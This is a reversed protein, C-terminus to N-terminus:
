FTLNQEEPFTLPEYHPCDRCPGSPNVACRLYASRANFQCSLDGVIYGLGEVYRYDQAQLYPHLATQASAELAAQYRARSYKRIKTTVLYSSLLGPILGMLIIFVTEFM